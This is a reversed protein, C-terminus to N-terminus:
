LEAVIMIKKKDSYELNPWHSDRWASVQSKKAYEWDKLSEKSEPVLFCTHAKQM